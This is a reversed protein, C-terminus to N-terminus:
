SPGALSRGAEACLRESSCSSDPHTFSVCLLVGFPKCLNIAYKLGCFRTFYSGFAQRLLAPSSAMMPPENPATILKAKRWM